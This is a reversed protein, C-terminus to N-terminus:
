GLPVGMFFYRIGFLVLLHAPYFWYFLYKHGIRGRKGNYLCICAMALIFYLGYERGEGLILVSTGALFLLLRNERLYYFLVILLVGFLGYDVRLVNAAACAGAIVLSSLLSRLAIDGTKVRELLCLTLLGLALTLYINQGGMYLIRNCVALDFPIESVLAFVLMNRLYRRYNSTHVYGEVLLFCFIPFAIRGVSRLLIDVTEMQQGRATELFGFYYEPDQYRLVGLELLAAGIHDILMTVIGIMKLAAGSLMAPPAQRGTQQINM